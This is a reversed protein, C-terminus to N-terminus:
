LLFFWLFLWFCFSPTLPDVKDKNRNDPIDDSSYFLGSSFLDLEILEEYKKRVRIDM